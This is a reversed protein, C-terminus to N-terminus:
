DSTIPNHSRLLGMEEAALQIAAIGVSRAALLLHPKEKLPQQILEMGHTPLSQDGSGNRGQRQALLFRGQGHRSVQNMGILGDCRLLQRQKALHSLQHTKGGASGLLDQIHDGHQVAVAQSTSRRAM